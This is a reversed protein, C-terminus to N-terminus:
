EWRKLDGTEWTATFRIAAMDPSFSTSGATTTTIPSPLGKDGAATRSAPVSPSTKLAAKATETISRAFRTGARSSSSSRRVAFSFFMSTATRTTTSFPVGGGMVEIIHDKAVSGQLGDFGSLGAQETVDVFRLPAEDVPPAAVAMSGYLALALLLRRIAWQNRQSLRGTAM